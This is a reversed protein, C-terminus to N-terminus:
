GGAVPPFVGVRDGDKVPDGDRAHRGNLFVVKVLDAPVNLTEMLDAITSGSEVELFCTNGSSGPPLLRALSAYLILQVKM